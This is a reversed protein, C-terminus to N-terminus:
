KSEQQALRTYRRMLMVSCCISVLIAIIGISIATVILANREAMFLNMEYQYSRITVTLPESFESEGYNNNASIYINYQVDKDLNAITVQHHNQPVPITQVIMHLESIEVYAM